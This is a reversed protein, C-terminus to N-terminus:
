RIICLGLLIFSKKKNSVLLNVPLLPVKAGDKAVKRDTAADTKAEKADAKKVTKATAVAEAKTAAAKADKAPAKALRYRYCRYSGSSDDGMDAAFAPASVVLGLAAILALTKNM